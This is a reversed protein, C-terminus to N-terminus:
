MLAGTAIRLVRRPDSPVVDGRWAVHQDPRVLTLASAYGVEAAVDPDVTLVKFPIAAERAAREFEAVSVDGLVVMSFGPGLRDFLASGDELALHPARAGPRNEPRYEALEFQPAPSGDWEDHAILPSVEYRLGFEGGPTVLEKLFDGAIAEATARRASEGVEGEEELGARITADLPSFAASALSRILTRKAEGREIGYGELLQAGGWGAISAAMKWGIDVADGIGLNMGWGALPVVQASDGILFIRGLDARPVIGFHEGRLGGEIPTAEFEAGVAAFLLPRVAEWDDGDIDPPCPTLIYLWEGDRGQPMLSSPHRDENVFMSAASPGAKFLASLGPARFHWASAAPTSGLVEYRLNLSERLAGHRGEAIVLHSGAVHFGEGGTTAEVSVGDNEAQVGSATVGWRIEVCDLDRIRARMAGDIAPLPAWM